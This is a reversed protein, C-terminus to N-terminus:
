YHVIYFILNVIRVMLIKRLSPYGSSVAWRSWWTQQPFCRTESWTRWLMLTWSRLFVVINQNCFFFFFRLIMIKMDLLNELVKTVNEVPFMRTLTNQREHVKVKLTFTVKVQHLNLLGQFCPKPVMDRVYLLPQQIIQSLPEHLKVRCLDVDLPGYLRESFSLDSNYLVRVDVPLFKLISYKNSSTCQHIKIRLTTNSM